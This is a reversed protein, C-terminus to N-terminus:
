ADVEDQGDREAALFPEGCERCFRDKEGRPEGCAPCSRLGLAAKRAAIREELDDKFGGSAAGAVPGDGAFLPAPAGQGNGSVAAGVNTRDLTELTTAAEAVYHARLGRYDAESLKGTAFDMDLDRIAELVREKQATLASVDTEEVELDPLIIPRAVMYAVVVLLAFAFIAFTM